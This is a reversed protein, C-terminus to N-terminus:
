CSEGPQPVDSRKTLSASDNPGCHDIIQLEMAVLEGKLIKQNVLGTELFHSIGKLHASDEANDRPVGCDRLAEELTPRLGECMASGVIGARDKQM